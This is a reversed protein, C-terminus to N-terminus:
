APRSFIQSKTLICPGRALCKGMWGEWETLLYMGNSNTSCDSKETCAGDGVNECVGRGVGQLKLNGIEHTEYM